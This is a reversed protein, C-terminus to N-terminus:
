LSREWDLCPLSSPVDRIELSLGAKHVRYKNLGDILVDLMDLPVASIDLDSDTVAYYDDAVGGCLGSNWPAQSGVNGGLYAIEIDAERYWELLPPYTSANDVVIPVCNSVLLLREVMSRTTTLRNRNNIFVRM